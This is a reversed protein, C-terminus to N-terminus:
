GLCRIRLLFTGSCFMKTGLLLLCGENSHCPNTVATGFYMKFFAKQTAEEEEERKRMWSRQTFGKQGRLGLVTSELANSPTIKKKSINGLILNHM